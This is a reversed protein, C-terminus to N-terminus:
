AMNVLMNFFHCSPISFVNKYHVYLVYMQEFSTLTSRTCVLELKPFDLEKNLAKTKDTGKLLFFAM